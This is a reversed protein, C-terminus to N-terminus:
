TVTCSYYKNNIQIGPTTNTLTTAKASMSAWATAKMQEMRDIVESNIALIEDTQAPVKAVAQLGVGAGVAVISMVVLLLMAEIMTLGRRAHRHSAPSTTNVTRM